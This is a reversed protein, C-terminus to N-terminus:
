PLRIPESNRPLFREPVGIVINTLLNEVFVIGANISFFIPESNKPRRFRAILASYFM